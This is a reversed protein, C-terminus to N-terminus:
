MPYGWPSFLQSEDVITQALIAVFLKGHLWAQAAILDKKPLHGLGFISKLRKFSIEIQWRLRYMEMIRDAPISDPLNTIVIIYRHYELADLNVKKQKKKREKIAKRISLEAQAESKKIACIRVPLKESNNAGAKCKLEYIEGVQIDKLKEIINIKSGNDEYLTMGRKILRVIFYAGKDHIYKIGRYLVYARDGILLDNKQIKFNVFSEGKKPTSVIFEDCMLNFLEISYHLRWDTGTSGPESVVSADVSRVNYSKFDDPPIINVGRRKLLEQTMWRFWESSSKIRKLLAVDSISVIGGFKARM